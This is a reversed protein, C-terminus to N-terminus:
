TAWAISEYAFYLGGGEARLPRYAGLAGTLRVMVASLAWGLTNLDSDGRSVVGDALETVGHEEGFLRVIESATTCEAPWHSNAWAWLWNEARDSTSGIVQIQAIVKPIGHDSFTLTGVKLDYDYRPWERVRYEADIRANKEQLMHVADHRWNPYWDPQDM